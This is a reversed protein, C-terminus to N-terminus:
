SFDKAEGPVCDLNAIWKLVDETRNKLEFHDCWSKLRKLKRTVDTKAQDFGEHIECKSGREGDIRMLNWSRGPKQTSLRHPSESDQYVFARIIEFDCPFPHIEHIGCRGNSQDLHRCFISTNDTQLDSYVTIEKNNFHITRPKMGEPRPEDPLYDLSYRKCCAGCGAPCGLNRFLLSSVLLPRPQYIKDHYVFSETAMVVFYSTVIKDITDFFPM